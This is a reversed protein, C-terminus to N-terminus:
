SFINNKFINSFLKRNNQLVFLGIITFPQSLKAARTPYGRQPITKTASKSAIKLLFVQAKKIANKGSIPFRM